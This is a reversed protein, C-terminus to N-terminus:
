YKICLEIRYKLKDEKVDIDYNNGFLLELRQQVNYLGIGVREKDETLQEQKPKSNEAVFRLEKANQTLRLHIYADPHDVIRSHKFCNEVMPQFIMPPVMHSQNEIECDFTIDPKNEMRILYFDIYNRIYAIDKHIAVEDSGCDDTVYRLMESLKLVSDPAKEDQMLTLSYICNLSNFLFHPNIRARLYKLELQTRTERSLRSLRKREDLLWSVTTVALDTLLLFVYKGHVFTRSEHVEITRADIHGHKYLMSFIRLDAETAITSVITLLVFCGIYYWMRNHPLLRPILLFRTIVWVFIMPLITTNSIFFASGLPQHSASALIFMLYILVWTIGHPYQQVLSLFASPRKM